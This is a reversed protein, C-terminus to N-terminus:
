KMLKELLRSWAGDSKTLNNESITTNLYSNTKIFNKKRDETWKEYELAEKWIKEGRTCIVLVGELVRKKIIEFTYKQTELYVVEDENKGNFYKNSIVKFKISHYPFFEALAIKSGIQDKNIGQQELKSLKKEWYGEFRNTEIHHTHAKAANNMILRGKQNDEYSYQGDHFECIKRHSNTWKCEKGEAGCYEYGPNSALLIVDANKINATFAFPIVDTYIHFLNEKPHKLNFNNIIEKEKEPPGLWKGSIDFCNEWPNQM